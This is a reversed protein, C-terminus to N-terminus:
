SQQSIPPPADAVDRPVWGALFGSSAPWGSPSSDVKPAWRWCAWGAFVGLAAVPILLATGSDLLARIVVELVLLPSLLVEAIRPPLVPRLFRLAASWLTANSLDAPPGNGEGTETTGSEFEGELPVVTTSTDSGGV